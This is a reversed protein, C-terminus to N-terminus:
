PENPDPPPVPVDFSWVDEGGFTVETVVNRNIRAAPSGGATATFNHPSGGIAESGSCVGGASISPCMNYLSVAMRNTTGTPVSYVIVSGDPSFGAYTLWWDGGGIVWVSGCGVCVDNSLHNGLYYVKWSFRNTSDLIYSMAAFSRCDGTAGTPDFWVGGRGGLIDFYDSILTTGGVRVSYECHNPAAVPTCDHIELTVTRATGDVTTSCTWTDETQKEDGDRFYRFTGDKRGTPVFDLHCDAGGDCSGSGSDRVCDGGICPVDFQTGPAATLYHLKVNVASGLSTDHLSEPVDFCVRHEDITTVEDSSVTLSGIKVQAAGWASLGLRDGHLCARGEGLATCDDAAPCVRGYAPDISDVEPGLIELSLPFPCRAEGQQVTVRPDAAQPQASAPGPLLREPLVASYSVDDRTTVLAGTDLEGSDVPGLNQDVGSSTQTLHFRVKYTRLLHGRFEASEGPVFGDDTGAGRICAAYPPRFTFGSTTGMSVGDRFVTASATGPQPTVPGIVASDNGVAPLATELWWGSSAVVPTTGPPRTLRTAGQEFVVDYTSEPPYYGALCLLRTTVRGGTFGTANLWGYNPACSWSLIPDREISCALSRVCFGDQHPDFIIRGWGISVPASRIASSAITPGHPIWPPIGPWGHLEMDDSTPLPFTEAGALASAFSVRAVLNGTQVPRGADDRGVWSIGASAVAEEWGGVTDTGVPVTGHIERVQRCTRADALQVAFPIVYGQKGLGVAPVNTEFELKAVRSARLRGTTLNTVRGVGSSLASPTMPLPSPMASGAQFLVEYVYSQGQAISTGAAVNPPLGADIGITHKGAGISLRERLLTSSATFRNPAIIEQGDVWVRGKDVRTSPGGAGNVVVVCIAGASPTEFQGTENNALVADAAGVDPGVGFLDAIGDGPVWGDSRAVNPNARAIEVVRPGLVPRGMVCPDPVETNAAPQTYPTAGFGCGPKNPDGDLRPLGELPSTSVAITDVYWGPRRQLGAFFRFRVRFESNVYPSVDFVEFRWGSPRDDPTVFGDHARGVRFPAMPVRGGYGRVPTVDVWQQGDWVEVWGGADPAFHYSHWFSLSTSRGQCGSLDMPPSVLESAEFPYYLGSPATAFLLGTSDVDFQPGDGVPADPYAALATAPGCTWSSNIGQTGFEEDCTRFPFRIVAGAGCTSLDTDVVDEVVGGRFIRVDDLFWGDGPTITGLGAHFRVQVPLGAWPSLDFFASGTLSFSVGAPRM